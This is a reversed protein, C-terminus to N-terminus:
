ILWTGHFAGLEDMEGFYLRKARETELGAEFDESAGYEGGPQQPPHRHLRREPMERRLPMGMRVANETARAYV